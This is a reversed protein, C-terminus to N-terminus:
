PSCRVRIRRRKGRSKSELSKTDFIRRLYSFKNFGHNKERNEFLTCHVVDIPSICNVTSNSRPFDPPFFTPIVSLYVAIITEINEIIENRKKKLYDYPGFINVSSLDNRCTCSIEM